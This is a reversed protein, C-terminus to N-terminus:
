NKTNSSGLVTMIQAITKKVQSIKSVQKLSRNHAKLRLAHLESQEEVLQEKLEAVSKNKLENFDM